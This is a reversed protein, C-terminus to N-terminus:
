QFLQIPVARPIISTVANIRVNLSPSFGAPAPPPGESRQRRRNILQIELVPQMGPNEEPGSAITKYRSNMM